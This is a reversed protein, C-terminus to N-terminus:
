LEAVIVSVNTSLTLYIHSQGSLFINIVRHIRQTFFGKTHHKKKEMKSAEERNM